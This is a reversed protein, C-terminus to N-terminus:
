QIELTREQESEITWTIVEGKLLGRKGFNNASGATLEVLLDKGDTTDIGGTVKVSSQSQNADEKTHDLFPSAIEPNNFEGFGVGILTLLAVSLIM